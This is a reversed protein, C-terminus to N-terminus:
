LLFLDTEIIDNLLHAMFGLLCASFSLNTVPVSVELENYYVSGKQDVCLSCTNIM